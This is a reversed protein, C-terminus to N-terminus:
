NTQSNKGISLMNAFLKYAGPVGAPLERFFSLGTYIYYGKGHKAILLSGDKPTEGNDNMSLVPTFEKAWANPFYLGREQVWGEFDKETITNPYNLVEHGPNIFRVESNEDTVRDRSLRLEYPSLADTKLDSNTNYQVILNGGQAVYDFLLQQKFKLTEVTNYARIGVVVADFAALSETTITEPNITTINYGIQKLSEPIMDGAGNIYGIHTGTKKIDLRIAKSESPLLATQHPIHEYDIEVMKKSFTIGNVTVVPSFVANHEQKPPIVTFTVVQEQGKNAIIVKQQKPFVQWNGPHQISVFGDINDRHAKVTVQIDKQTDNNFIIVPETIKVSVEPVIEFPKYVEGHVPHNTKYVVPKEFTMSYGDFDLTFIATLAPNSQPTGILLDDAVHYMGLSGKESLWYPTSYATSKAITSNTNYNYRTNNALAQSPNVVTKVSPINVSSLTINYPSRNISEIKLKVNDGPSAHNTEATVEIFLGACAAIIDKIDKSKVTKWHTDEINQILKYAEILLPISASPNQYDFNKEVESIIIGIAQGGNVRNWTTDIGDFLNNKNTPLGGKLLELYETESGRSGTNGFGQSKHKSRSLASIENNSLGLAPFYTGTDFVLLNTKDAKNFQEESGYFRWSTNLFLRKPQWTTANKLQQPFKTPDNTLDFAELSLLASSTHHGHTSGPNRHDFRNIIVDPKFTRIAWVVDGLVENKNWITLTEDPHKSFGFDNARTFLQEGGDIKRAELLEQTRILGLLESLETGILNQGGDGRTISLYAARAKLDNAMYSILRTNEDDPHAAVYLVSALVNLKKISEHIESATPKKPQQAQISVSLLCLTFLLSLRKYM